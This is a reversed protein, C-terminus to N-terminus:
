PLLKPHYRSPYRAQSVFEAVCHEVGWLVPVGHCYTFGASGHLSPDEHWKPLSTSSHPSWSLDWLKSWGPCLSASSPCSRFCPLKRPRPGQVARAGVLGMQLSPSVIMAQDQGNAVHPFQPVYTDGGGGGGLLARAELCGIHNGLFPPSSKVM